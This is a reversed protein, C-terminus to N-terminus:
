PETPRSEENRQDDKIVGDEMTVIRDAFSYVRPDHTVVVVARDPRLATDRLTQMVRHGTAADLASTPEDCVILRPGAIMARAFAVRQQQGGSLRNPSSRHYENLGVLDLEREAAALSAKRSAGAILLPLAVNEAVTLTPVLNFQQFVFGISSLRLKARQRSSLSSLPSGLTVVNGETPTLIGAVVSLLTTKGCGSPGVLLTLEGSQISLNIGRLARVTQGGSVFDKTVSDCRILEKSAEGTILPQVKTRSM